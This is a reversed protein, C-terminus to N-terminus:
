ISMRFKLRLALAMLFLFFPSLVAAITSLFHLAPPAARIANLTQEEVCAHGSVLPLMRGGTHYLVDWTTIAAEHAAWGCWAFFTVFWLVLLALGPLGFSSGHDCIWGYAKRLLREFSPKAVEAWCALKQRIMEKRLELQGIHEAQTRIYEYCTIQFLLVGDSNIDINNSSDRKPIKPWGVDPFSYLPHLKRGYFSPPMKKFKANEFGVSFIIM